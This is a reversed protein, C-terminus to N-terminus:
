QAHAALPGTAVPLGCADQITFRSHALDLTNAAEQLETKETDSGTPNVLIGVSRAKPALQHLLELRKSALATSINSVGPFAHSHQMMWRIM